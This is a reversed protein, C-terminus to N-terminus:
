LIVKLLHKIKNINRKSTVPEIANIITYLIDIDSGTNLSGKLHSILQHEYYNGILLSINILEREKLNLGKRGLVKGYGEVIMWLNLDESIKSINNQLKDFNKKYVKKCNRIGKMYFRKVEYKAKRKDNYNDFILRFLKMAEITAPFGCFLYTQLIVEYVKQSNIGMSKIKRLSKEIGSKRKGAILTALKCLEIIDVNSKM